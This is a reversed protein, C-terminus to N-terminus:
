GNKGGESFGAPILSVLTKGRYKAEARVVEVGFAARMNERTLIEETPGRLAHGNELFLLTRDATTLAHEPYHTNFIILLNQERALRRILGLVMLQNRFDLGTEPEDMILLEPESALARAILTMQLQGGSIQGCNQGRIGLVGAMAMAREAAECDRKGPQGFIGLYAGRGLLVNEEVTCPFAQRGAQPVYAARQWFRRQGSPSPDVPSGDLFLGGSTWRRFGLLCRLLTTKGIGNKGLIAWVEGSSASFSINKLLPKGKEYSFAANRLELKM